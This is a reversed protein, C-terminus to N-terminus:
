SPLAWARQRVNIHHLRCAAASPGIWEDLDIPM